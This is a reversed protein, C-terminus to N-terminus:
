GVRSTALFETLSSLSLTYSGRSDHGGDLFAEAVGRKQEVMTTCASRSRAGPWLCPSTSTSGSRASASSGRSASTSAAGAVVAPRHQILHNAEPLDVGYGGADSSLFLRTKPDTKFQAM